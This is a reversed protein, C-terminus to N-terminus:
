FAKSERKKKVPRTRDFFRVIAGGKIFLLIGGALIFLSIFQSTSLFGIFGREVDDYRLFEILFRTVAYWCMYLALGGHRPCSKKNTYVMLIVFIILNTFVELLQVPFLYVDHPAVPSANFLLGLPPDMPKGYCCGACFCGIRGIGHIIPIATVILNAYDFLRLRFQWCYFWAGFVGGILGGYFVFGGFFYGPNTFLLSFDSLLTGLNQIFYLLKAGDARRDDAYLLLYFVDSVDRGERRLRRTRLWTVFFALGIGFAACIRVNPNRPWPYLHISAYISSRKSLIFRYPFLFPM